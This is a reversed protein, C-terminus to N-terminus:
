APIASSAITLLFAALPRKFYAALARAQTLSLATGQGEWKAFTLASVKARKAADEITAGSTERAWKLVLPSIRIQVSRSM